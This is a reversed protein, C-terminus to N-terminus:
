HCGCHWIRCNSGYVQELLTELQAADKGIFYAQLRNTFIPYLSIMQDNNSASISVAGDVSRVRCIFNNKYRLLELTEIIVPTDFYATKLIPKNLAEDLIKYTSSIPEDKTAVSDKCSSLIGATAVAGALSSKLFKRRHTM